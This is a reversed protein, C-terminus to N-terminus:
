FKKYLELCCEVNKVGYIPIATRLVLVFIYMVIFRLKAYYNLLSQRVM